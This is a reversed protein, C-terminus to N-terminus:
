EPLCWVISVLLRQFNQSQARKALNAPRTEQVDRDLAIDWLWCWSTTEAVTAVLKSSPHDSASSLLAEFDSKLIETKMSKVIAPADEPNKLCM